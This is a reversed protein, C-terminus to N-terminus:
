RAGRPCDYYNPKAKPNRPNKKCNFFRNFEDSNLMEEIRDLGPPHTDLDKGVKKQDEFLRNAPSLEGQMPLVSEEVPCFYSMATLMEQTLQESNARSRALYQKIVRAGMWDSFYEDSRHNEPNEAQTDLADLYKM